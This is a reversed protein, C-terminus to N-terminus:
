ERAGALLFSPDGPRGVKSPATNGARHGPVAGAQGGPWPGALVQAERGRGGGHQSESLVQRPRRQDPLRRQLLSWSIHFCFRPPVTLFPWRAAWSGSCSLSCLSAPDQALIQSGPKSPLPAQPGSPLPPPPPPQRALFLSPLAPQRAELAQLRGAPEHHNWGGPAVGLGCALARPRQNLVTRTRHSLAGPGPVLALCRANERRQERPKQDRPCGEALPSGRM